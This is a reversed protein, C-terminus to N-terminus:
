SIIFQITYKKIMYKKNNITISDYDQNEVIGSIIIRNTKKTRIEVISNIINYM